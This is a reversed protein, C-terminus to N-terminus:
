NVKIKDGKSFLYLDGKFELKGKDDVIIQSEDPVGYIKVDKSLNLLEHDFESTYHAKMILDVIGLSDIRKLMQERIKIYEKCMLYSGASNGVIVGNFSKIADVLGKKNIKEILLETDGGLINMLGSEKINNINEEESVKDSSFNIEEAGLKKFYDRLFEKYEDLKVDDDKAFDLVYTKTNDLEAFVQEDVEKTKGERIKRGGLLYIKMAM